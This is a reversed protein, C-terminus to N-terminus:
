PAIGVLVGFSGQWGPIAEGEPRALVGELTLPISLFLEPGLEVTLAGMAALVFGSAM